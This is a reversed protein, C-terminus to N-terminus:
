KLILFFIIKKMNIKCKINEYLKYKDYSKINIRKLILM